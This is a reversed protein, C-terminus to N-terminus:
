KESKVFKLLKELNDPQRLATDAQTAQTPTMGTIKGIQSEGVGMQGVTRGLLNTLGRQAVGKFTQQKVASPSMNDGQAYARAFTDATPKAAQGVKSALRGLATGAKSAISPEPPKPMHDAAAPSTGYHGNSDETGSFVLGTPFIHKKHYLLSTILTSKGTGPKGIVVIKSGGQDPNNMNNTNPNIQELNLENINLTMINDHTNNSAM